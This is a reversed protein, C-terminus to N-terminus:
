VAVMCLFGMAGAKTWIDRDVVGAKEWKEAHPVAEKEFFDHVTKQFMLHEESLIKSDM